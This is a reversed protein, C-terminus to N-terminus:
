AAKPDFGLNKLAEESEVSLPIRVEEGKDYAAHHGQLVENAVGAERALM